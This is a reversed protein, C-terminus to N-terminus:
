KLLLQTLLNVADQYLDIEENNDDFLPDITQELHLQQDENLQVPSEPIVVNNDADVDPYPAEEDIGYEEWTNVMVEEASVPDIHILRTMGYHWLQHPSRNNATSIPHHARDRKMESLARNIRPLYIYHLSFIHIENLPDLLQSDELFYFINQFHQVVVRKVEGWLREIRQNHVSKGTIMSGRNIAKIHLMFRAVDVNEIGFDSRVRSPQGQAAIAAEFLELVTSAKNNTNCRLYVIIRSYGDIGGHIVFRWRILKHHGDIHRYLDYM